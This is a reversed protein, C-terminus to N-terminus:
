DYISAVSILINKKFNDNLLQKPLYNYIIKFNIYKSKKLLNLIINNNKNKFLDLLYLNDELLNFAINCQVLEKLFIQIYYLNARYLVINTFNITKIENSFIELLQYNNNKNYSVDNCKQFFKNIEEGCPSNKKFLADSLNKRILIENEQINPLNEIIQQSMDM